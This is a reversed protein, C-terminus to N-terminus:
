ERDLEDFAIEHIIVVWRNLIRKAFNNFVATLVKSSLNDIGRALYATGGQSQSGKGLAAQQMSRKPELTVRKKKPLILITYQIALVKNSDVPVHQDIRHSGLLREIHHPYQPIFNQIM